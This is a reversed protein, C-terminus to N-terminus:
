CRPQFMVTLLCRYFFAFYLLHLMILITSLLTVVLEPLEHEVILVGEELLELILRFPLLPLGLPRM